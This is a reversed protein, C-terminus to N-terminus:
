VCLRDFSGVSKWSILCGWLSTWVCVYVCVCVCVCGQKNNLPSLSAPSWLLCFFFWSSGLPSPREKHPKLSCIGNQLCAKIDGRGCMGGGSGCGLVMVVRKRGRGRMNGESACNFMLSFRPEARVDRPLSLEMWKSSSWRRLSCFSSPCLLICSICNNPLYYEPGTRRDWGMQVCALTAQGWM